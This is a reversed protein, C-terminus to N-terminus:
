VIWIRNRDSVHFTVIDSLRLATQDIVNDFDFDNTGVPATRWVGVTLPQTPWRLTGM